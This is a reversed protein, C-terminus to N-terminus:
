AKEPHKLKYTHIKYNLTNRHIGLLHAALRKNGNAFNLFEQILAKEVEAMMHQHLNLSACKLSNLKDNQQMKLYVRVKTRVFDGIGIPMLVSLNDTFPEKLPKSM